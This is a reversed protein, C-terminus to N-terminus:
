VAFPLSVTNKNLTLLNTVFNPVANHIGYMTNEPLALTRQFFHSVPENPVSYYRNPKTFILPDFDARNDMAQIEQNTDIADYADKLAEVFENYNTLLKQTSNAIFENTASIMAASCQLALQAYSITFSGTNIGSKGGTLVLAATLLVLTGIMGFEAGFEKILWDVAIDVVVSIAVAYALATLIAAWGKAFLAALDPTSYYLIVVTIVFGVITIISVFWDEEYWDLHTRVISNVVLLACDTYILRRQLPPLQMVINYELPLIMNHNAPDASIMDLTTEVIHDGAVYNIVNLDVVTVRRFTTKSVQLDLVLHWETYGSYNGDYDYVGPVDVKEIFKRANGIILKTGLKIQGPLIEIDIRSFNMRLSLGYESFLANVSRYEGRDYFNKHTRPTYVDTDYKVTDLTELHTFYHNLYGITAVSETQIDAGFVVYAHDIEAISPNKNLEAGLGKFPMGLINLLRESTKYLDSDEIEQVQGASLNSDQATLDVNNLRLPVVPFYKDFIPTTVRNDLEPYTNTNLKYLWVYQTFLEDENKYYTALLCDDYYTSNNTDPRVIIEEHESVKQLETVYYSGTNDGGYPVEYTAYEWYEYNMIVSLNDSSIESGTIKLSQGNGFALNPYQYLLRTQSDFKRETILFDLVDFYPQYTTYEFQNLTVGLPYTINDAIASEIELYTPLNIQTTVGEPLGLAYETEAYEVATEVKLHLSNLSSRLLNNSISENKLLAVIVAEQAPDTTGKILHFASTSVTTVTSM